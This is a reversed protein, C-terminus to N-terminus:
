LFNLREFNKHKKTEIEWPSKLKLNNKNTLIRNFM